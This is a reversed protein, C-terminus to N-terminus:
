NAVPASHRCPAYRQFLSCSWCNSMSCATIFFEEVMSNPRTVALQVDTLCPAVDRSNLLFLPPYASNTKLITAYRHLRPGAPFPPSTKLAVTNSGLSMFSSSTLDRADMQQFTGVSLAASVDHRVVVVAPHLQRESLTFCSSDATCGQFFQQFDYFILFSSRLTTTRTSFLLTQLRFLHLYSFMNRPSWSFYM